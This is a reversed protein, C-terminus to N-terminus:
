FLTIEKWSVQKSIRLEDDEELKGILLESNPDHKKYNELVLEKSYNAYCYRCLHMCTNYMGIDNGLFCACEKRAQSIKPVNLSAHIAKEFMDVTMCGSCNAGYSELFNGEACPRVTMGYKSAIEIMKKGLYLQDEKSVERVEPFNKLVKKYLDIFSIVCTKTYGCLEKAITEFAHLHYEMTYKNSIFIPDYRWGMSDIGVKRSITKFDELIQHKNPVNPEIDKGYPTITVYWYQGYDKLLDMYQIMPHPNKTCFAICDVVDPNLEYRTVIKPYYPNRVLVYGEKLRNSFWKSYFAPIDSRSGTQLIM